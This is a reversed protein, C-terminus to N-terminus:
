STIFKKTLDEWTKVNFFKQNTNKNQLWWLEKVFPWYKIYDLRKLIEKDIKYLWTYLCTKLNNEKAIDLFTILEEKCREWWLFCITTIFDKYKSIKDKFVNVTLETTEEKWDLFCWKCNLKCWRILFTLSTENPVEQFTIQENIVRM